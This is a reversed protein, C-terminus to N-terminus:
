KNLRFQSGLLEGRRLLYDRLHARGRSLRSRVTGLSSATAQAIEEYSLGQLDRLIVAMRQDPPLTALGRQIEVALERRLVYEEPSEGGSPLAEPELEDTSIVPRRRRARLQDKCANAVISLLWARFNGQRFGQIGKWASLFADQTADEAAEIQGVMRWALNYAQRQYLEVLRNFSDLDGQKSRRILESEDMALGLATLKAM